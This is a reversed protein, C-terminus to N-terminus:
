ITDSYYAYTCGDLYVDLGKSKLRYNLTQPTLGMAMGCEKASTFLTEKGSDEEVVRVVRDGSYLEHELYPDSVKRWQAPDHAFKVQIFGPLVPQNRLALWNSLSAKSVRLHAAAETLSPFEKVEGTLVFHILTKRSRSSFLMAQSVDEPIHWPTSVSALRYQKGEPFVKTEGIKVRWNIKDKSCGVARACAVISPYDCVVGTSVDRVSIPTCKETLGNQGAHEANGQYTTWELNELDDFGKISNKHNIVLDDIPCGPYKFVFGLLRHRGWTMTRGANNTLRFVHYGTALMSGTLTTKSQRNVVKGEKSILYRSYGPIEYFGPFDVDEKLPNNNM